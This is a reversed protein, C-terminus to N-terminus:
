KLKLALIGGILTVALLSLPLVLISRDILSGSIGVLIGMSLLAFANMISAANAHDEVGHLAAMSANPVCCAAGMFIIAAALFMSWLSIWHLIFFVLFVVSGVVAIGMGLKILYSASFKVALRNSLFGGAFIGISPIISMLGYFTEPTHLLGIAIIPALANFIYSMAGALSYLVILYCYTRNHLLKNFNQYVYVLSISKRTRATLTEPLQLSLLLLLLVYLLTLVLIGTVGTLSVVYSGIAIACFPVFSFSLVVISFLQRAEQEDYLDTIMTMSVLLGATAGLATFFRAFVLLSFVHATSAYLALVSGMLAVSLGLVLAKKRGFHNAIPGYVLQGLGFGILYFSMILETMKSSVGFIQGIKPLSPTILVAVFSAVSAFLLLMPLAIKKSQAAM